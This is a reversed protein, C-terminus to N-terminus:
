LLFQSFCKVNETGPVLILQLMMMTTINKYDKGEIYILQASVISWARYYSILICEHIFHVFTVARKSCINKSHLASFLCIYPM